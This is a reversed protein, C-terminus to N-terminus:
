PPEQRVPVSRERGGYPAGDDTEPVSGEMRIICILITTIYVM